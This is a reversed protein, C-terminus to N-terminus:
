FISPRAWDEEGVEDAAVNLEVQEQLSRVADFPVYVDRAWPRDLLFDNARVRKVTGVFDGDRGIVDMGERLRGDMGATEGWFGRTRGEEEIEHVRLHNNVNKVGLIDEVTDEAMRKDRRHKVQGTLTIEGNQVEVDIQTADLWGNMTLREYAEERIREDSRQYDRPGYGTYPGEIQWEELEVEIEPESYGFDPRGYQWSEPGRWGRDRPRWSDRNYVERDREFRRSSPQEASGRGQWERGRWGPAGAFTYDRDYDDERWRDQYLEDMPQYQFRFDRDGQFRDERERRQWDEENDAGQWRDRYFDYTPQYQFRFDEERDGRERRRRWDEERRNPRRYDRFVM